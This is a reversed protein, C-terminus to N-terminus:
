DFAREPGRLSQSVRTRVLWNGGGVSSKNVSSSTNEFTYMQINGKQVVTFLNHWNKDRARKGDADLYSKRSIMGEKAWPAGLLALEEDLLPDDVTSSSMSSAVSENDTEKIVTHTLNSAFGPAAPAQDFGQLLRSSPTPLAAM